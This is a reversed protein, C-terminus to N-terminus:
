ATVKTQANRQQTGSKARPGVAGQSDGTTAQLIYTTGKLSAQNSDGKARSVTANFSCLQLSCYSTYLHPGRM